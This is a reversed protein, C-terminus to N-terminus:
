IKCAGASTFLYPEAGPINFLMWNIKENEVTRERLFLRIHQYGKDSTEPIKIKVRHM